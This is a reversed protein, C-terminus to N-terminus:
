KKKGGKLYEVQNTKLGNRMAQESAEAPAVAQANLMALQAANPTAANLDSEGLGKVGTTM